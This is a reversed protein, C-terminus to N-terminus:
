FYYKKQSNYPKSMMKNSNRTIFSYGGTFETMRGEDFQGSTFTMNGLDIQGCPETSFLEPM